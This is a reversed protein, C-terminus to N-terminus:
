GALLDAYESHRKFYAKMFPCRPVVGLRQARAIDLVGRVLLSGIGRGALHGPVETHMVTLVDGDRRYDAFAIEGDVELEFRQRAPNDRVSNSM